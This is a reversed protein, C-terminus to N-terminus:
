LAISGNYSAVGEATIFPTILLNLHIVEKVKDGKENLYKLIIGSIM